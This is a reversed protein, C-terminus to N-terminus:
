CSCGSSANIETNKIVDTMVDFFKPDDHTRLYQALKAGDWDEGKNPPYPGLIRLIDERKTIWNGVFTGEEEYWKKEQGEM